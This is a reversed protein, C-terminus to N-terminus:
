CFPHDNVSAFSSSLCIIFSSLSVHEVNMVRRRMVKGSYRRSPAVDRRRVTMMATSYIHAVEVVVDYPEQESVMVM